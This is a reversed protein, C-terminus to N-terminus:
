AASNAAPAADAILAFCTGRGVASRITVQHGLCRAARRVIFLGLGLGESRTSDLREFAEFLETVDEAPIGVGDDHVEIRVATGRRRCGLLVRGGAPTYELANRVLNRVIGTLLVAHSTVVASTPVLRLELGRSPVSEGVERAVREFIEAVAVPGPHLAGAGEDFRLAEVLLDLKEILQTTARKGLELHAREPGTGLRRCLLEHAAVITQLPQRLDHGAMALVAAYFDGILAREAEPEDNRPSRQMPVVISM